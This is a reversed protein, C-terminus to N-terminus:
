YSREALTTSAAYWGVALLMVALAAIAVARRWRPLRQGLVLIVVALALLVWEGIGGAWVWAHATGCPRCSGSGCSYKDTCDSGIGFANLFWGFTGLGLAAIFAAV